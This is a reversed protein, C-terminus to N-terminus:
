GYYAEVMRDLQKKIKKFENEECKLLNAKENKSFIELLITISYQPYDAYIVRFSGSKGREMGGMRIKSLGGTNRITDGGGAMIDHQLQRVADDRIEYRKLSASFGPFEIFTRKM